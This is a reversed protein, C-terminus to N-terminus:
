RRGNKRKIHKIDNAGNLLWVLSAELKTPVFFNRVHTEDYQFGGKGDPHYVDYTTHFWGYGVTLDLNWRRGLALSCGYSLGLGFSKDLNRSMYGKGGFEFDYTAMQGYFGIHHGRYPMPMRWSDLYYRIESQFAYNSFYRNKERSNWWAGVYDLQFALGLDTQIEVGVNPSLTLDYLANTRLMVAAPPTEMRYVEQATAMRFPSALLLSLLMIAGTKAMGTEQKVDKKM